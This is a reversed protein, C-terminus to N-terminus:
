GPTGRQQPTVEIPSFITSYPIWIKTKGYSFNEVGYATLFIILWAIGNRFVIRKYSRISSLIFSSLSIIYFIIFYNTVRGFIIPNFFSAQGYLAMILIFKEFLVKKSTVCSAFYCLCAPIISKRLVQLFDFFLGHSTEDIYSNVKSEFIPIEAIKQLVNRSFFGVILVGCYIIIYKKNSSIGSFFPLIVLTIASIHFLCAIAIGIYYNLWKKEEFSRYNYIFIMIALSERLIETAFYLYYTLFLASLVSFIYKTNKWIFFLLLCNLISSHILQFVYFDPSISKGVACLFTYGPQYNDIFTFRWENLPVRWNYDGMYNLTDAGVKYRLGIILTLIVGLFIYYYIRGRVRNTLDFIIVGILCLFFFLGYPLIM